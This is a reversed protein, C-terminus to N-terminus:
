LTVGAGDLRAAACSHLGVLPLCEPLWAAFRRGAFLFEEGPYTPAPAKGARAGALEPL